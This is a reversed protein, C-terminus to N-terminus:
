GGLCHAELSRGVITAKRLSRPEKGISKYGFWSGIKLGFDMKFWGTKGEVGLVILKLPEEL